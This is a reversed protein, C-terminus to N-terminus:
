TLAFDTAVVVGNRLTQLTSCYREAGSLLRKAREPDVGDKVKVQTHMEIGTAGVPVDRDVGMTGRFDWHIRVDVHVSELEVGMNAAVSRLTSEECIALASALIDGSCPTDGAGGAAPHLGARIAAAPFDAPAVMCHRPDSLDSPVSSAETVVLASRPDSKYKEKLPAQVSRLDVTYPM